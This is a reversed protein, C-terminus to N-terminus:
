QGARLYSWGQEQKQVVELVGAPVTFVRDSLESKNIKHKKMTNECAMFAVGRDQLVRVAEPYRSQAAVLLSIGNNHCVVEVKSRPAAELLNSIQTLTSKQVLTDGSTLQILVRHRKMDVPAPGKEQSFAPLAFLCAIYILLLRM